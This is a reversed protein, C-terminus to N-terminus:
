FGYKTIMILKINLCSHYLYSIRGRLTLIYATGRKLYKFM